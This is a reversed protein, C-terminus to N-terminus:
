LLVVSGSMAKPLLGPRFIVLTGTDSLGQVGVHDRHSDLGWAGAYSKTIVPAM